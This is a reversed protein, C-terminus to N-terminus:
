GQRQLPPSSPFSNKNKVSSSQEASILKLLPLLGASTRVWPCNMKQIFVHKSYSAAPAIAPKPLWGLERAALARVLTEAGKQREREEIETWIKQHFFGNPIM